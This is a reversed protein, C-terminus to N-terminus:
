QVIHIHSSGPTYIDSVSIPPSEYSISTSSGANYISGNQVTSVYIPDSQEYHIGLNDTISLTSTANGDPLAFEILNQLGYAPDPAAPRVGAAIQTTIRNDAQTTQINGQDQLYPLLDWSGVTKGASVVSLSLEKVKLASNGQTDNSFTPSISYTPQSQSDGSSFGTGFSYSFRACLNDQLPLELLEGSTVATGKATFSLTYDNQVPLTMAATFMGMGSTETAFDYTRGTQDLATVYVKDDSGLQKLGFTVDVNASLASINYGKISTKEEYSMKGNETIQNSVSDLRNSLDQQMSYLGEVGPSLSSNLSSISTELGDIRGYLKYVMIGLAVVCVFLVIIVTKASKGSM